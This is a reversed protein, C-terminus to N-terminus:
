DFSYLLSSPVPMFRLVDPSLHQLFLPVSKQALLRCQEYEGADNRPYVILTALGLVARVDVVPSIVVQLVRVDCHERVVQKSRYRRLIDGLTFEDGKIKESILLALIFNQHVLQMRLHNEVM